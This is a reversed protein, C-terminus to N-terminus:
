DASKVNHPPLHQKQSRPCKNRLQEGKNTVPLKCSSARNHNKCRHKCTHLISQIRQIFTLLHTICFHKYVYLRLYVNAEWVIGRTDIPMRTCTHRYLIAGSQNSKTWRISLLHKPLEPKLRYYDLCDDTTIGKRTDGGRM